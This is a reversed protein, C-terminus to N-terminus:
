PSELLRNHFSYTPVFTLLAGSNAKARVGEKECLLLM